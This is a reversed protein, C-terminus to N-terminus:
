PDNLLDNPYKFKIFFAPAGFFNNSDLFNNNEVILSGTGKSLFNGLDGYKENTVIIM